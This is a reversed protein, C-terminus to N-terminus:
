ETGEQAFDALVTGTAKAVDPNSPLGHRPYIYNQLYEASNYTLWVRGQDDEWVLAKLPVDIAVTPAKQMGLTGLKPNGFVIVTRPRLKLGNKEAAAAHDIETFVMWGSASKANVSSEFRQATESVSHKSEKTILGSDASFSLQPALCLFATAALRYVCGMAGGRDGAFLNV